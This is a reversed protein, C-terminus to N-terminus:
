IWRDRAPGISLWAARGDWIRMSAVPMTPWDGPFVKKQGDREIRLGGIAWPITLSVGPKARTDKTSQSTTHGAQQATTQTIQQAQAQLTSWAIVIATALAAAIIKPKSM